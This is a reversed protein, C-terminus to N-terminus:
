LAELLKKSFTYFRGTKRIEIYDATGGRQPLFCKYYGPTKSPQLNWKNKLVQCISPGDKQIDKGCKSIEIILSIDTPTLCLEELGTDEMLHLLLEPLKKELPSQSNFKVIKRWADTVILDRRFWLRDEKKTKLQRNLLFYLFAPIEKKLEDDFSVNHNNDPITPVKRVWFRTDNKDLKVPNKENNSCFIFKLFQPIEVRDKGKQEMKSIEQIVLNKIKEMDAPTDLVAEEIYLVLKNKWDSDFNGRFQGAELSTVNGGFTWHVFNCFTSKGTGQEESVLLLVPLHLKPYVYLIQLYDLGYEYQEGFIHRVLAEIHKWTGGAPQHALQKYTNFYKDGSLTTISEKYNVNDPQCTSNIYKPAQNLINWGDIKGFDDLLDQKNIREINPNGFVDIVKKYWTSAIRLYNKSIDDTKDM